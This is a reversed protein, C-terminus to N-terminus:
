GSRLSPDLNAQIFVRSPGAYGALQEIRDFRFGLKGLLGISAPNELATIALIEHMKLVERGHLLVAVSSEYGYGKGNHRALFAFGLDPLPLIDRKLLGNIGVPTRDAKLEVLWLGHGHRAYSALPGDRLYKEAGAIDRVGRDGIYLHFAPENLLELIFPADALTLERVLLRETHLALM